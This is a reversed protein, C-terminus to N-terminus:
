RAVPHILEHRVLYLGRTSSVEPQEDLGLNGLDVELNIASEMMMRRKMENEAMEEEFRDESLGTNYFDDTVGANGIDYGSEHLYDSMESNPELFDFATRGASSKVDSNAGHDLLLKAIGKHRNTMAWMLSSWQNKDQKDVDAGADLLISVVDQHGFCSAYILPPTGEADPRDVGVWEKAPGNLLANVREVEGNSAAMTFMSQLADRKETDSLTDDALVADEGANVADEELRAKSALMQVLKSDDDELRQLSPDSSDDLSLNFSLPRAPIPTTLFQSQGLYTYTTSGCHKPLLTSTGAWADYVETEGGFHPVTRRDNLSTPLDDPLKRQTTPSQGPSDM